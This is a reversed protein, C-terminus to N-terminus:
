NEHNIKNKTIILTSCKVADENRTTKFGISVFARWCSDEVSVAESKLMM